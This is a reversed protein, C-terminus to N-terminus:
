QQRRKGDNKAGRKVNNYYYKKNYNDIGKDNIKEAIKQWSRKVEEWEEFANENKMSELIKM